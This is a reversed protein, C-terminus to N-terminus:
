AAPRLTHVLTSWPADDLALRLDEDDEYRRDPIVRAAVTVTAEEGGFPFPDCIGADEGDPRLHVVVGEDGVRRPVGPQEGERGDPLGRWLLWLSLTDWFQLLRYAAWAWARLADGGGIRGALDGQLAEQERLFARVEAPRQDRPPPPGDLGLREEYLGQGHMSVLLGARASREAARAIGLRYLAMHRERDLDPFDIPHGEPDVEPVEEWPRWGEDHWAAADIVPGYPEPREFEGNGWREAMQRCQEQHDVQRVVVLGWARRRILM